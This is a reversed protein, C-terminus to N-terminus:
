LCDGDLADNFGKTFQYAAAAMAIIQWFGGAVSQLQEDTLELEDLNPEAPINLYIISDDSQDEVSLTVGNALSYSSGTFQEITSIPNTILQDKFDSNRHTESIIMGLLESGKQIRNQTTMM